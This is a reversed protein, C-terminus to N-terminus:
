GRGADLARTLALDTAEAKKAAVTNTWVAGRARNPGTDVDSEMGAGGAAQIRNVRRRLDERVGSYRGEGKLLKQVEAENLVIKPKAM